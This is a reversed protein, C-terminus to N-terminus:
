PLVHALTKDMAADPTGGATLIFRRVADVSVSASPIFTTDLHGAGVVIVSIGGIAPTITISTTM